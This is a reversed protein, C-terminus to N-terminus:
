YGRGRCKSCSQGDFQGEGTGHCMSCEPDEQAPSEAERQDILDSLQKRALEMTAPQGHQNYMADMVEDDGEQCGKILFDLLQTDDHGPKPALLQSTLKDSECYKCQDVPNFNDDNLWAHKACLATPENKTAVPAQEMGAPMPKQESAIREDEEKKAAEAQARQLAEFEAKQREFEAREAALKRAEEERAAREAAERAAQEKRIRELEARQAALEAAQVERAKVEQLLDELEVVSMAQAQKAEAAFEAYEDETIQLNKVDFLTLAIQESDDNRSEFAIGKIREIKSRIAAVREREIREKEAKEAAKRQEEAKIQADIPEELERIATEIRKAETDIRKAYELAPGKLEKRKAELGTRLKVLTQRAERAAKDGATTVVDFQVGQYKQRLENLAAETASYEKIQHTIETNM